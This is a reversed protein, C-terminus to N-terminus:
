GPRCRCGSAAALVLQPSQAAAVDRHDELVRERRQVGVEGHARLDDLGVPDVLVHGLLDGSPPGDLQEVADPDWLRVPPHVVVRVLEGAAHPLARHDRHAQDVVRRHQDGVLRGRREVHGHLRLDEVQELVQLALEVRGDDDDGVVQPDDGLHGVVGQDHVAAARDLVALGRLDEGVRLHGVRPPQEGRHGLDGAVGVRLQDRDRAVRGAQEVRRGPAVEVRAAGVLVLDGAVQAPGGRGLQRGAVAAACWRLRHWRGSGSVM